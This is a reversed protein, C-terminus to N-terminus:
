AAGAQAFAVQMMPAHWGPKPSQLELMESPQSAANRVDGICQPPQLWAQPGISIHVIPCHQPGIGIPEYWVVQVPQSAHPPRSRQMHLSVM